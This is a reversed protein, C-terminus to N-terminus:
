NDDTIEGITFVNFCKKCEYGTIEKDDCVVELKGYMYSGNSNVGILKRRCDVYLVEYIEGVSGCKPCKM